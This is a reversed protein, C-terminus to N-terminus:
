EKIITFVNATISPYGVSNSITLFDFRTKCHNEFYVLISRTPVGYMTALTQISRVDSGRWVMLHSAMRRIAVPVSTVTQASYFVSVGYHSSCYGFLRCLRGLSDKSLSKPDIDEIIVLTKKKEKKLDDLHPIDQIKEHDIDNYETTDPDFHFLIIREFPPNQHLVLNKLVSTKGSSPSSMCICRFPSPLDALNSRDCGTTTGVKDSNEFVMLRDTPLHKKNPKYSM